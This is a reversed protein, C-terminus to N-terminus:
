PSLIFTQVRVGGAVRPLMNFTLMKRNRICARLAQDVQEAVSPDFVEKPARGLMRDRPMGFWAAAAGNVEAFSCRGDDGVAAVLRVVPSQQFLERFDKDTIVTQETVSM